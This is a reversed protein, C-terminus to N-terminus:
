KMIVYFCNKGLFASLIEVALICFTYSSFYQLVALKDLVRLLDTDLGPIFGEGGM